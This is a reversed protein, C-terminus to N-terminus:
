SGNIKLLAIKKSVLGQLSKADSHQKHCLNEMQALNQHPQYQMFFRAM